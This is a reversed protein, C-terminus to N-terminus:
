SEGVGTAKSKQFYRPMNVKIFLKKSGDPDIVMKIGLGSKSGGCSNTSQLHSFM